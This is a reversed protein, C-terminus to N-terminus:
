SYYCMCTGKGTLKSEAVDYYSKDSVLDCYYKDGNGSSDSKYNPNRNLFEKECDVQSFGIGSTEANYSKELDFSIFNGGFKSYIYAGVGKDFQGINSEIKPTSYNLLLLILLIFVVVSLTWIIAKGKM